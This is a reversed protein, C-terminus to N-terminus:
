KRQLLKREHWMRLRGMLGGGSTQELREEREQGGQPTALAARLCERLVPCPVCDHNPGRMGLEADHPMVKELAAFCAPKPEPESVLESRAALRDWAPPMTLVGRPM